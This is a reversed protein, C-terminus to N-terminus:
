SHRLRSSELSRRVAESADLGIAEAIRVLTEVTPARMEREVYSVMQYSLGAGQAVASLSMGRSERESKLLQALERRFAMLQKTNAVGRKDRLLRNVTSTVITIPVEHENTSKDRSGCNAGALVGNGARIEPFQRVSIESHNTRVDGGEGSFQRRIGPARGM